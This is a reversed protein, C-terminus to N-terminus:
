GKLIIVHLVRGILFKYLIGSNHGYDWDHVMVIHSSQYIGVSFSEDDRLRIAARFKASINTTKDQPSDSLLM